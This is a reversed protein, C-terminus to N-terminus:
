LGEVNIAIVGALNSEEDLCELWEPNDKTPIKLSYSAEVEMGNNKILKILDTRAFLVMANPVEYNQYNKDVDQHQNLRSMIDTFYGPFADGRKKKDLYENLVGCYKKSYPSAVSIYLKGGSKLLSKAQKLFKKIENPTFFHIVKDALIADFKESVSRLIDPAKGSLIKINDMRTAVKLKVKRLLIELHENSIDNAYYESVGNQLAEIPLDGFGAGIELVKKGPVCEQQLFKYSIQSPIFFVYGTGNLTNSKNGELIEPHDTNNACASLM